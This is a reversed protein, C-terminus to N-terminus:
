RIAIACDSIPLNCCSTSSQPMRPSRQRVFARAPVHGTFREIRVIQHSPKRMQQMRPRHQRRMRM